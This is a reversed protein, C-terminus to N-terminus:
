SEVEEVDAASVPTREIEDDEIAPASEVEPVNTAIEDSTREMPDAAAPNEMWNPVGGCAAYEKMFMKIEPQLKKGYHKSGEDFGGDPVRCMEKFVAINRRKVDMKKWLSEFVEIIYVKSSCFVSIPHPVCHMKIPEKAKKKQTRVFGMKSVDFGEFMGPFRELYKEMIGQVENDSSWDVFKPM